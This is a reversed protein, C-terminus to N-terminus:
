NSKLYLYNYIEVLGAKIIEYINSLTTGITNDLNRKFETLGIPNDISFIYHNYESQIKDNM